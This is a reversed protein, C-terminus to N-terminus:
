GLHSLDGNQGNPSPLTTSESFLASNEVRFWWILAPCINYNVFYFKKEHQAILFCLANHLINSIAPIRIPLPSAIACHTMSFLDTFVNSVLRVVRNKTKPVTTTTLM